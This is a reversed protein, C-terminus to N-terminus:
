HPVASMALNKEGGKGKGKVHGRPYKEKYLYKWGRVLIVWVSGRARCGDNRFDVASKMKESMALSPSHSNERIESSM